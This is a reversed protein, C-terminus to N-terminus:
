LVCKEMHFYKKTTQFITTMVMNKNAAIEPHIRSPIVGLFSAFDDVCGSYSVSTFYEIGPLLVVLAM